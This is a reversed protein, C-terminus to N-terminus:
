LEMASCMTSAKLWGCTTVLDFDERPHLAHADQAARMGAEWEKRQVIVTANPISSLGGVHDFHLHSVVVFDVQGPEQFNAILQRDISDEQDFRITLFSSIQRTRASGGVFSSPMGADFLVTGRSHRILWASVSLTAERTAGAEFVALEGRLEGCDLRAITTMVM